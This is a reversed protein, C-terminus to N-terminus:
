VYRNIADQEDIVRLQHKVREKLDFKGGDFKVPLGTKPDIGAALIPELNPLFAGM